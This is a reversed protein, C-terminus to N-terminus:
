ITISKCGLLSPGGPGTNIGYACVQHTGPAAAIPSTFGHAEGYASYAAAVDARPRDANLAVGSSDVYVHVSVSSTTDPDLAWGSVVIGGPGASVSELNGIPVRGQETVTPSGGPVVVDNCGLVTHGGPGTNIGYVCVRHSGPTASVKETYGHASGYGPFAAAIDAREKNAAFAVGVSDVYVHVSTSSATDPDLAWGSVSIGDASPSTSELNGIPARGQETMVPQAGPVVVTKCGLVTTTGIGVNIGYACVSHSGPAAALTEDFGHAAGYQPFVGAIDSRATSAVVAKGINDVYLHVTAPDASDPDIAWGSVRIGGTVVSANDLAGIPPGSMSAVSYCGLLVNVGPGKNLAYVCVNNAGVANAPVTVDFGHKSGLAPYTAGVDSRELNATFAQGAAGVYVHVDLSASSDPDLAWGTIRFKGPSASVFEVNGIPNVPGTTSGFWNTFYVWFNRNGYSSCSDGTGNLNGLAAANPQYPTYNYLNATAQNQINVTTAGCAANPHYGVAVNGIRYQRAPHNTYQRFQWAARYIQNYLGYFASDCDSTDPCGYGMAKRYTGDTPSTDTILGTEKQLLVLLTQPNIGCAQAAKYLIRSALENAGGTYESCHGPEVAARTYTSVRYDKLCTYGGACNTVKSTLFDQIQNETMSGKDFFRQDSIIYGPDFGSGSLAQSAQPASVTSATALMTGIALIAWFRVASRQM